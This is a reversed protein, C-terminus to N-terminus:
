IFARALAPANHDQVTLRFPQEKLSMIIILAKAEIRDQDRPYSAYLGGDARSEQINTSTQL